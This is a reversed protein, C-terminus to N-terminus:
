TGTPAERVTPMRPQHRPPQGTTKKLSRRAPVVNNVITIQRGCVSLDHSQARYSENHLKRRAAFQRCCMQEAHPAERFRADDGYPPRRPLEAKMSTHLHIPMNDEQLRCTGVTFASHFSAFDHRAPLLYVRCNASIVLRAALFGRVGIARETVPPREVM